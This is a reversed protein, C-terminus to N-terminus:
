DHHYPEGKLITMARYLQEVFLLRVMQHSFTMASLSLKSNAREYIDSSFGYPGGVVVVIRKIGAVMKKDIVSAFDRSSFHKGKEDLLVVEDGPQFQQMLLTGEMKKQQDPSIGKNRRVDPLVKMEFPIYHVLREMYKTIGEDLYSEDTKGIVLFLVKVSKVRKKWNLSLLTM